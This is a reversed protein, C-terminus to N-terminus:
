FPGTLSFTIYAAITALIPVVNQMIVVRGTTTPDFLDSSAPIQEEEETGIPQVQDTEPTAGSPDGVTPVEEDMKLGGVSVPLAEREVAQQLKVTRTTRGWGLGVICFTAIVVFSAPIGISSLLIVILSSVVAVIIAATLPLDTIDNGITDLTRRAITFAGVAVAVSGIIIGPNMALEGSGVLPAIANAINSTGSSFAMLCGVGVVVIAGIAERPTAEAAVTPHPVGATRGIVFIQEGSHDIAIWREIHPYLYRGIMVALWFGIVPGLIWWIVIEGMIALDLQGVAIAFGAISGVATMSTSAPVGTLNGILLAGGIFFLIVISSEITFIAPDHVLDEGLTDVVRRGYTWAGLFFFGSMLVAAGFKSLVQSGVAPGFAPGTTAGGINYGVFCAVGLGVLLIWDIM